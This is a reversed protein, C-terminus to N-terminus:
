AEYTRIVPLIAEMERDDAHVRLELPESLDLSFIAMISKANVVYRGSILDFDNDFRSIENIFAKIKELSNLSIRYTKM